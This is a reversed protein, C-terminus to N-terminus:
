IHILSLIHGMEDGSAPLVRFPDRLRAEHSDLDLAGLAAEIRALPDSIWRRFAMWTIGWVLLALLMSYLAISVAIPRGAQAILRETTTRVILAPTGTTTRLLYFGHLRHGDPDEQILSGEEIQATQPFGPAPQGAPAYTIPVGTQRSLAGLMADDLRRGMILIGKPPGTRDSKFVKSSFALVLGSPTQLLGSPATRFDKLGGPPIIPPFHSSDLVGQGALHEKAYLRQGQADYIVILSLHAATFTEPTLNVPEFTPQRGQTYQWLDDWYAWDEVLTGLSEVERQIAQHIRDVDRTAFGREVDLFRTALLYGLLGMLGLGYVVVLVASLFVLKTRIRM